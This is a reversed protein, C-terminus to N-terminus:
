DESKLKQIRSSRVEQTGIEYQGDWIFCTNGFFDLLWLSWLVPNKSYKILFQYISSAQSRLSSGFLSFHGQRLERWKSMNKGM